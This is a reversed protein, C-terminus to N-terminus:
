SISFSRYLSIAPNDLHCRYISNHPLPPFSIEGSREMGFAAVSLVFVIGVQFREGTQQAIWPVIADVLERYLFMVEFFM